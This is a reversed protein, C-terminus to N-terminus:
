QTKDAPAGSRGCLFSLFHHRENDAYVRVLLRVGGDGHSAAAPLEDVLQRRCRPGNPMRLQKRPRLPDLRISHPRKLVDAADAAAKLAEQKTM